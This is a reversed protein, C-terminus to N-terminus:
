HIASVLTGGLIGFYRYAFCGMIEIAPKVVQRMSPAMFYATYIASMLALPMAVLMAYFAAKMTGFVLPILSYKPEFDNNSASSQWIYDPKPYSEYWVEQWLSKFSVEPHENDVHWFHIKGDGSQMLLANARPALAVSLLNDSVHKNILKKESTSHYIGINGIADVILFGKRRQEGKIAVVAKDSVKFSRIKQMLSRGSSERVITWQSVLGTSDGIMLSLDGNLFAVSTIQQGKELVNQAQKLVPSSKDSIDYFAVRGNSSAVYLNQGEKDVLIDAVGESPVSIQADTRNLTAEDAFLSQEKELSTVRIETASKSIITSVQESIQASIQEIPKGGEDLVLAKEGLPYMLSPTIVRKNNPYSVDYQHKVVVARGDSLGYVVAGENIPSGQSFSLIKAGAPIAVAQQQITKGTAVDFFVVQGSDTFRAAVENQEEMDLLLTKGASKEPMEYVGVPKATAPLFLPFVVYLLYFFIMVVAVIVGMGGAIVGYRAMSDKILRWQQYYQNSSNEM